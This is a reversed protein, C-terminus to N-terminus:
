ILLYFYGCSILLYMFYKFLILLKWNFLKCWIQFSFSVWFIFKLFLFLLMLVIKFFPFSTSSGVLCYSILFSYVKIYVSLSVTQFFLGTFCFLVSYGKYHCAKESCDSFIYDNKCISSTWSTKCICLYIWRSEERM